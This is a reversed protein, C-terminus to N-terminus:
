MWVPDTGNSQLTTGSAGIPLVAWASAGRVLLSGRASGLCADLIASLGNPVPTATSGAINSLIELAPIPELSVTQPSSPTVSIGDGADIQAPDVPDAFILSEFLTRQSVAQDPIPDSAALESSLIAGSADATDGAVDSTELSVLYELDLIGGNGQIAAWIQQILDLGVQNFYVARGDATTAIPLALSPPPIPFNAVVPTNPNAM